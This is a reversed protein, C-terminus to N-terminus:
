RFLTMKETTTVSGATFRVFYVGAATPKGSADRGDWIAQHMGAPFAGDELSRVLMGRANYVNLTVHEQTVLNFRIVTSSRFPNPSIPYLVTANVQRPEGVGASGGPSLEVPTGLGFIDPVLYDVGGASVYHLGV